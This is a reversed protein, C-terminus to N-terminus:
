SILLQPRLLSTGTVVPLPVGNALIRNVHQEIFTAMWAVTDDM